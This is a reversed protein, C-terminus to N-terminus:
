KSIFPAFTPVLIDVAGVMSHVVDVLYEGEVIGSENLVVNFRFQMDPIPQAGPEDNFLESGVNLPFLTDAPKLFIPRIPIEMGPLEKAILTRLHAGVDMSQFSSGVTVLLRHKDIRNLEHIKWLLDNGGKYPKVSDILNVAAQSM